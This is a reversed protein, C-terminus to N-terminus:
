NLSQQGQVKNGKLKLEAQAEALDECYKVIQGREGYKWRQMEGLRKNSREPRRPQIQVSHRNM